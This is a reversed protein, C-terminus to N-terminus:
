LGDAFNGFPVVLLQLVFLYALRHFDLLGQVVLGDGLALCQAAFHGLLQQLPLRCTKLFMGLQLASFGTKLPELSFLRNRLASFGTKLPSLHRTEVQLEADKTPLM